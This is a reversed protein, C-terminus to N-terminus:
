CLRELDLLDLFDDLLGEFRLGPSLCVQLGPLSYNVPSTPTATLDLTPRAASDVAIAVRIAIGGAIYAGDRASM